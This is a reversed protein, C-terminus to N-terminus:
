RGNGESEQSRVGPEQSRQDEVLSRKNGNREASPTGLEASTRGNGESEQRRAGREKKGRERGGGAIGQLRDGTGEVREVVALLEGIRHGYTHRALVESQGAAAIRERLEDRSLYFKLKDLMEAGSAYTEFHRGPQLLEAQGSDPLANGLLLTGCAPVEFFRMNVDDGVSPNLGVKAESLVRAMDDFYARGVFSNRHYQRALEVIESRPGPFLNGAFVFDYRKPLDHKRHVAPNAALPLWRASSIGREALERAGRKQAAFVFDFRRAMELREEFGLHTDITWYAAPRCQATPAFGRGDDIVLYLDFPRAAPRELDGPLFHVVEDLEGRAVLEDLAQKVHTGTTEPRATNDFVIAVRRIRM